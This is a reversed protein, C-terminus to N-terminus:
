PLRNRYIPIDFIEAADVLWLFKVGNGKGPPDRSEDAFWELADEKKSKDTSAADKIAQDLIAVYLRKAGDETITM